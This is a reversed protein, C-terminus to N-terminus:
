RKNRLKEINIRWDQLAEENRRDLKDTNKINFHLNNDLLEIPKWLYTIHLNDLEPKPYNLLPAIM